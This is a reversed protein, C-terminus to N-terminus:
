PSPEAAHMLLSAAARASRAVSATAAPGQMLATVIAGEALLSLQDALADPEVLGSESALEGLYSRV